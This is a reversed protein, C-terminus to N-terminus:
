QPMAALIIATAFLLRMAQECFLMIRCRQHRTGLQLVLRPVAQGGTVDSLTRTHTAQLLLRRGIRFLIM